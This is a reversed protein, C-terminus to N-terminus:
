ALTVEIARRKKGEGIVQFTVRDGVALLTLSELCGAAHFFIERGKTPTIFGFGKITDVVKIIGIEPM